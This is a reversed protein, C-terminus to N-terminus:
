KLKEGSLFSYIFTKEQTHDVGQPQKRNRGSLFSCFKEQTKHKNKDTKLAGKQCVNLIPCAREVRSSNSRLWKLSLLVLPLSRGTM